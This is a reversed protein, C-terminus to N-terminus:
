SKPPVGPKMPKGARGLQAPRGLGARSAGPGPVSARSVGTSPLRAAQLAAMAQHYRDSLRYVGSDDLSNLYDDFGLNQIALNAIVSQFADPVARFTRGPEEHVDILLLSREASSFTVGDAVVLVPYRSGDPVLAVLERVPLERHGPDAVVEVRDDGIEDLLAQWAQDDTFDTRLLPSHDTEPLPAATM